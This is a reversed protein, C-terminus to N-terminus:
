PSVGYNQIGIFPGLMPRVMADKPVNFRQIICHDPSLRPVLLIPTAPHMRFTEAIICQLYPLKSVDPEYVFRDQGILTDLEDEDKKLIEPQNLLNSMARELTVISTDTAAILLTQLTANTLIVSVHM